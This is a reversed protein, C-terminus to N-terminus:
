AGHKHPLIWTRYDKGHVRVVKCMEHIRSVLPEGLRDILTLPADLGRESGRGGTAEGLERNSTMIMPLDANYRQAIIDHMVDKAWPTVRGAGLDDLILVEARLVPGLVESERTSAGTEFTGQLAKLLTRQEFFLVRASKQTALERAISVALHTKGTGPGGILLLGQEVAPWQEVWARAAQLGKKHADHHIEFEEFTCHGYRRPIHAAALMREARDARDCECRVSTVVGGDGTTLRYGTGSCISCEGPM